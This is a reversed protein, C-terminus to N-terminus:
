HIHKSGEMDGLFLEEAEEEEEGAEEGVEEEEEGAGAGAEEEEQQVEQQVEQHVVQAQHHHHAQHHGQLGQLHHHHLDLLGQLHHRHGEEAQAQQQQGEVPDEQQYLEWALVLPRGLDEALPLDCWFLALQFFFLLSLVLGSFTM